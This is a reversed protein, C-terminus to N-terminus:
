AAEKNTKPQQNRGEFSARQSQPPVPSRGELTAKLEAEIAEYDISSHHFVENKLSEVLAVDEPRTARIWDSWELGDKHRWWLHDKACLSSGNEVMWRTRKHTRPVIHDAHLQVEPPRRGCRECRAIAKVAEAWLKDLRKTWWKASGREARKAM